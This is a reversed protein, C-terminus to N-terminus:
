RIAILRPVGELLDKGNAVYYYFANKVETDNPSCGFSNACVAEMTIRYRGNGLPEKTISFGFSPDYQTPNFTQLLVDTATQIKWKSHKAIWFQSREWSQKCTTEDCELSNGITTAPALANILATNPPICGTLITVALVFGILRM